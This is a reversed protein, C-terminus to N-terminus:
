VFAKQMNNYEFKQKSEFYFPFIYNESKEVVFKNKAIILLQKTKKLM